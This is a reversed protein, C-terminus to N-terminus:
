AELTMLLQIFCKTGMGKSQEGRGQSASEFSRMNASQATSVARALLHIRSELRRQVAVIFGSRADMPAFLALSAGLM